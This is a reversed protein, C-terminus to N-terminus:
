RCGPAWYGSAPRSRLASWRGLVPASGERGGGGGPGPWRCPACAHTVATVSGGPRARRGPVDVLGPRGRLLSPRAAGCFWGSPPGPGPGELQGARLRRRFAGPSRLLVVPLGPAIGGGRRGRRGRARPIGSAPWRSEPRTGGGSPIASGGWWLPRRCGPPLAAPGMRRTVGFGYGAWEWLSRLLGATRCQRAPAGRAGCGPPLARVRVPATHLGCGGHVSRRPHPRSQHGGLPPLPVSRPLAVGGGQGGPGGRGRGGSLVACLGGPRGAAARVTCPRAHRCRSVRWCGVGWAAGAAWPRWVAGTSRRPPPRVAGCLWRYSPDPGPGELQSGAAAPFLFWPDSPPPVPFKPM